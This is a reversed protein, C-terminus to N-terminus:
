VRAVRQYRWVGLVIDVTVEVETARVERAARRPVRAVEELAAEEEAEEAEVEEEDLRPPDITTRAASSGEGTASTFAAGLGSMNVDKLFVMPKAPQAGSVM